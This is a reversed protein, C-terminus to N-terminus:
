ADEAPLPAGFASMIKARRQVPLVSPGNHFGGTEDSLDFNDNRVPLAITKFARVRLAPLSQSRWATHNLEPM